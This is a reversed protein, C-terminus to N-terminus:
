ALVAPQINHNMRFLNGPDYEGKVQVLRDYNPGYAARIRESEDATLFNM